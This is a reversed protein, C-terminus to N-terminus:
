TIVEDHAHEKLKCNVLAELEPTFLHEMEEADDHVKSSNIKHEHMLYHEWLLHLHFVHAGLKRGELTLEYHKGKKSLLKDKVLYPLVDELEKSPLDRFARMAAVTHKKDISSHELEYIMKLVNERYIKQKYSWRRYYRVVFGREPAAIFSFIAMVTMCLVICPGTPLGSFVYSSFTGSASAVSAFFITLLLVPTFRQSWFRAMTTPIVLMATLLVIGVTRIGVIIAFIALTHLLLEIRVLPLGMAEAYIRDFLVLRLTPLFPAIVLLLLLAMMAFLTIDERMLTAVDGLLFRGIGAQQANGSGQICGHLLMGFGFFTALVSATATSEKIKSTTAIHTITYIAAAGSVFAGLILYLTTKTGALLFGICLGPFLAHAVADGVLSKQQLTHFFGIVATSSASLMAGLLLYWFTHDQWFIM